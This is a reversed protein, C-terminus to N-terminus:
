GASRVTESVLRAVLPAAELQPLHGVQPLRHLAVHAPLATAYDAPIIRDNDGVIMRVPGQYRALADRISFLQTSGAFVANALKKQQAALSTGERGALTARLLAGPLKAPDHVLVDLWAKLPAESQAALFGEVFDGNVKPGLGAPSILTLSRVDLTGGGALEAAVAAGLSHAVLHLRALGAAELQAQVQAVLDAFSSAGANQSIGHGPLDLALLTNGVKMQLVFPRWSSLDAGFGHIFLVADGTGSQLSKIGAAGAAPAASAAPFSLVTAGAPSSQRFAEVDKM